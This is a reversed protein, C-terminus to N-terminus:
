KNISKVYCNPMSRIQEKLIGGHFDTDIATWWIINFVNKDRAYNNKQAKSKKLSFSNKKKKLIM